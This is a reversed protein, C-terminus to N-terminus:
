ATVGHGVVEKLPRACAAGVAGAVAAVVADVAFVVVGTCVKGGGHRGHRRAEVRLWRSSIGTSFVVGDGLRDGVRLRCPGVRADEVALGRGGVLRDFVAGRQRVDPAVRQLAREALAAQPLHVLGPVRQQRARHRHLRQLELDVHALTDREVAQKQIFRASGGAQAVRVDDGDVVGPKGGVANVDRHLPQVAAVQALGQGGAPLGGGALRRQQHPTNGVRQSVCMRAADHMAVDLRGVDEQTPAVPGLHEVEADRADGVTRRKRQQVPQDGARRVVQRWFLQLAARDVGAGVDVRQTDDEVFQQRAALGVAAVRHGLDGVGHEGVM